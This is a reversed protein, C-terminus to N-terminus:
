VTKFYSGVKEFFQEASVPKFDAESFQEIQPADTIEKTKMERFSGALTRIQSVTPFREGTQILQTIAMELQYISRDALFKFYTELLVDTPDIRFSACLEGIM